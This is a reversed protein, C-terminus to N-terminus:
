HASKDLLRRLTKEDRATVSSRKLNKVFKGHDWVDLYKTYGFVNVEGRIRATRRLIVPILVRGQKDITVAQGFYKARVVLRDSEPRHLRAEVSIARDEPTVWFRGHLTLQFGAM